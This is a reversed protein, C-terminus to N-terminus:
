GLDSNRKGTGIYPVQSTDACTRRIWVLYGVKWSRVYHTLPLYSVPKSVYPCSHVCHILARVVFSVFFLIRVIRACRTLSSVKKQQTLRPHVFSAVISRGFSRKALSPPGNHGRSHVRSRPALTRQYLYLVNTDVNTDIKGAPSPM